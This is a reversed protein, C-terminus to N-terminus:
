SYKTFPATYEGEKRKERGMLDKSVQDFRDKGLNKESILPPNGLPNYIYRSGDKDRGFLVAHGRDGEDLYERRMQPTGDKKYKIEGSADRVPTEYYPRGRSDTQIPEGNPGKTSPDQEWRARIDGKWNVGVHAQEGPKIEDWVNDSTEKDDDKFWNLPNLASGEGIERRGGKTLGLDKEMKEINERDMGRAGEDTLEGTKPDISENSAYTKYLADAARDLQEPTAQNKRVADATEGLQKAAKELMAKRDPDSESKAREEAAKKANELGKALEEPGGKQLLGAMATNSQCRADDTKTDKERDVQGWQSLFKERGEPSALDVPQDPPLTQVSDGLGGGEAGGVPASQPDIRSQLWSAAADAQHGAWAAASRAGEEVDDVAQSAAEEVTDAAESLAQSASDIADSATQKAEDIGSSVDDAFNRISDGVGSAFDGISM